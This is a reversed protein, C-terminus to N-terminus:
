ENKYCHSWYNLIIPKFKPNYIIRVQYCQLYIDCIEEGIIFWSYKKIMLMMFVSNVSNNGVLWVKCPDNMTVLSIYLHVPWCYFSNLLPWKIHSQLFISTILQAQRLYYKIYVVQFKFISRPRCISNEFCKFIFKSCHIEFSEKTRRNGFM